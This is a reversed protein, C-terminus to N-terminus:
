SRSYGFHNSYSGYYKTAAKALYSLREIVMARQYEFDFSNVDLIWSGKDSFHALGKAEDFHLGLASAVAKTIRAAMNGEQSWFNGLRYYADKNLMLAIHFHPHSSLEQERAWVARLHCPHVRSGQRAKHEQDAKIQAKLSALFRSMFHEDQFEGVTPFRLDVRIIWTRPHDTTARWLTDNIRQLYEVILPGQYVMVPYSNWVPDYWLHLNSNFPHRKKMM